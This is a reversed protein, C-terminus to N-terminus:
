LTELRRKIGRILGKLLSVPVEGLCDKVLIEELKDLYEVLGGNM